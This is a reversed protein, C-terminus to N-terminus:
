SIHRASIGVSRESPLPLFLSHRTAAPSPRIRTKLLEFTPPTCIIRRHNGIHDAHAHSVFNLPRREHADLWLPLRNVKINGDLHLIIQM